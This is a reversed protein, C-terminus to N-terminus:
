TVYGLVDVLINANGNDNYISVSGNAGVAVIVLNPVFRGADTAAMLPAMSRKPVGSSFSANRLVPAALLGCTNRKRCM